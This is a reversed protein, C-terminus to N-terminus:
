SNDDGDNALFRSESSVEVRDPDGIVKTRGDGLEEVLIFDLQIPLGQAICAEKIELGTVSHRPLHVPHENVHITVAETLLGDTGHITELEIPAPAQSM